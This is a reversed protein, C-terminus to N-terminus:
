GLSVGFSVVIMNYYTNITSRCHQGTIALM